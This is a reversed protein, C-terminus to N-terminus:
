SLDSKVKLPIFIEELTIQHNLHFTKLGVKKAGELHGATDDIFLTETPNLNNDQIVKEFCDENPKRLGMEHSLYVKEFYDDLNNIKKTKQLMKYIFNVHLENTNSLCFTRYNAKAWLLIDFRKEPIDLLMANWANMIKEDIAPGGILSGIRYVFDQTTIKGTEYGEFFAEQHLQTMVEDHKEGMISKFANETAQQDLNIIVMGLDFLINKVGKLDFNQM